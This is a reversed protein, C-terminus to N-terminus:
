KGGQGDGGGSVEGVRCGEITEWRGDIVEGREM